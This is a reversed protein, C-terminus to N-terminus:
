VFRPVGQLASKPGASAMSLTLGDAEVASIFGKAPSQDAHPYYPTCACAIEFHNSFSGGFHGMFFNDALTYKQAVKWMPLKSGDYHGMVLAGSDAYAVFKDNKGGDIQMQNEYFRHWLDRTTVSLPLNFGKPDDIAFPKNPLHATRDQPIEPKVGKGTLWGWVPPLEALVSGDRDRQAMGPTVNQLGNAGPFHGYLNDFSRNEAYIVVITQIADLNQARANDAAGIGAALLALAFPTVKM